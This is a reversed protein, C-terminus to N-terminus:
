ATSRDKALTTPVLPLLLFYKMEEATPYSPVMWGTRLDLTGLSRDYFRIVRDADTNECLVEVLLLGSDTTFLHFGSESRALEACLPGELLLDEGDEEVEIELQQFAEQFLSKLLQAQAKAAPHFRFTLSARPDTSKTLVACGCLLECLKGQFQRQETGTPLTAAVERLARALSANELLGEWEGAHLLRHSIDPRRTQHSARSLYGKLKANIARARRLSDQCSYFWLQEETLEETILGDPSVLSAETEDLWSDVAKLFDRDATSPRVGAPRAAILERVKVSLQEDELSITIVTPAHPKMESLHASVPASIQSEIARKLARAGLQPHYGMDVIAEMAQDSVDLICQRRVLGERSFLNQLLGVALKSTDDRSLRSFPVVKDLRNFFEPPFFSEVAKHYTLDEQDIKARLGIPKAAEAVGLNSTLILLTQTFDVTRGRADTLRGDGLVQLLLNFVEQHAKEIEDLLIVCFPRRRVAATLLGDPQHFTGVLRSASYPSVYENMDFRLLREEDGFLYRALAKACETKGVGTPGVFLLSAIPRSPDALRTKAMMVADSAAAVAKKQGLVQSGLFDLVTLRDLKVRDDVMRLSMGSTKHFYDLVLDSSVKQSRNRAAIKRLFAAGKGPFCADRVYREQIDVATTIAELEFQCGHTREAERVEELAVELTERASTETLRTLTFLDAFGRDRERLIALGQNTCEALIRVQGRQLFPKLVDAVCLNSDRSVGASFLGLLDQFILVINKKEAHKLIALLRAEWQGIFSMGSILRQPSLLWFRRSTNKKKARYRRVMEHILATKGVKRPGVLLLPARSHGSLARELRKAQQDRCLCRALDHPYLDDLNRGVRELEIWGEEVPKGGLTMMSSDDQPRPPRAPVAYNLELDTIWHHDTLEAASGQGDGREFYYDLVEVSRARLDAGRPLQYWLDLTPFFAIRPDQDPLVVTLFEGKVTRKKYHFTFTFTKDHLSPYFTYQALTELRGSKSVLNLDKRLSSTLRSLVRELLKGSIIPERHFLPRATYVPDSGKTQSVLIPIELKM